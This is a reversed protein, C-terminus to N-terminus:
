RTDTPGARVPMWRCAAETADCGEGVAESAALGVDILPPCDDVREQLEELAVEQVLPLKVTEPIEPEATTM